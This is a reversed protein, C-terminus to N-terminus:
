VKYKWFFTNM